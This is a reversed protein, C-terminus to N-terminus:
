LESCYVSSLGKTLRTKKKEEPGDNPAEEDGDEDSADSDNEDSGSDEDGSEPAGFPKAPKVALTSDVSPAAFSSLKPGSGGAFGNGLKPGFVSGTPLGGGFASVGGGGFGFGASPKEGALAGFGSTPITASPTTSPKAAALTGFGSPASSGGGFISPKDAGISAFPSTTSNALSAFGSSAFASKAIQPKDTEKVSPSKPEV